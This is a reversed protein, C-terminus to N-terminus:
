THAAATSNAETHPFQLPLHPPLWTQVPQCLWSLRQRLLLLRPLLSLLLPPRPRRDRSLVGAAPHQPLQPPLLLLPPLWPLDPSAPRLDPQATPQVAPRPKQLHTNNKQGVPHL